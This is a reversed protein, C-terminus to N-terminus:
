SLQDDCVLLRDAALTHATKKIPLFSNSMFILRSNSVKAVKLV